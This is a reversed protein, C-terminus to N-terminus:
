PVQLNKSTKAHITKNREPDSDEKSDNTDGQDATRFPLRNRTEALAVAAATVAAALDDAVGAMAVAAAVAAAM